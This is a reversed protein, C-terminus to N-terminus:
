SLKTAYTLYPIVQKKLTIKVIKYYHCHYKNEFIIFEMKLYMKLMKFCLTKGHHTKSSKLNILMKVIYGM